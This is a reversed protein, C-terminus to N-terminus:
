RTNLPSGFLAIIININYINIDTLAGGFKAPDFAPLVEGQLYRDYRSSYQSYNATVMKIRGIKVLSAKVTQFNPLHLSTVAEFVYLGKALALESIEKVEAATAAFPKEVIVNKGALLAQKAYEYHVSNVLGIYVFDVSEDQLIEAYETVVKPISYEKALNEAVGKSHQRAYIAIVEIEPVNKLAPLAGVNPSISMKNDNLVVIFNKNFRGSNNMGEFALGGTFSGDGIVAVTYSQDGMLHKARAIGYAASISTSSHGTNFDDYKSEARKPFGSIGGKKRITDFQEYRGTLLKHTYAQHGVDWVISDKPLNFSRELAVTLEVVGLNPSLHGGNVSVTEVLKERIETCLKELQEDNLKKVDHPSKIKSLLEYEGM